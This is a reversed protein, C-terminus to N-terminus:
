DGSTAKALNAEMTMRDMPGPWIVRIIGNEDLFLSTPVGALVYKSVAAEDPDLLVPFTYGNEQLFKPVSEPSKETGTLNVAVMHFEDGNEEYLRQIEPMEIRCPPCWTAWFNVFVPKGRLDSLRVINGNVDKLTFDPARKGIAVGEQVPTASAPQQPQALPPVGPAVGADPHVVRGILVGLGVLGVVILLKRM